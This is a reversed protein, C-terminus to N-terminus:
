SLLLIPIRQGRIGAKKSVAKKLIFLYFSYLVPWAGPKQASPPNKIGIIIPIFLERYSQAPRVPQKV